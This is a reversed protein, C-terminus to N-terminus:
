CFKKMREDLSFKNKLVFIICKAEKHWNFQDLFAKYFYFIFSIIGPSIFDKGFVWEYVLIGSETFQNTDLFDRFTTINENSLLIKSNKAKLVWYLDM